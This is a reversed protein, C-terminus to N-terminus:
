KQQQLSSASFHAYKRCRIFFAIFFLYQALNGCIIKLSINKPSLKVDAKLFLHQKPFQVINLLFCSMFIINIKFFSQFCSLLTKFSCLNRLYHQILQLCIWSNVYFFGGFFIMDNRPFTASLWMWVRQILLDWPFYLQIFSDFNYFWSSSKM